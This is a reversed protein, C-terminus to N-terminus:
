SKVAPCTCPGDPSCRAEHSRLGMSGTGRYAMAHSLKVPVHLRYPRQGPAAIDIWGHERIHAVHAAVERDFAASM